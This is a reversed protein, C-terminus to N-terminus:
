SSGRVALLAIWKGRRRAVLIRFGSRSLARRLQAEQERLIGSLIMRGDRALSERFRPLLEILLESFLNASIVDFKGRVLKRADGLAFRVGRIRNRRSNERATRLAIPDNEIALVERAGFRWGALALVGSGTGADLMRWGIAWRRTVEELLRLSMATTAHEGTGFAAGAPIVLAPTEAKAPADSAVILRRGIRLPKLQAAAYFQERWDGPLRRTKGGFRQVLRKALTASCCCELGIRTRGPREITAYQGQTLRDLEGENRLLWARSAEQRWLSLRPDSPM